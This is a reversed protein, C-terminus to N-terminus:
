LKVYDTLKNLCNVLYAYYLNMAHITYKEAVSEMIKTGVGCHRYGEIVDANHLIVGKVEDDITPYTDFSFRAIEEDNYMAKVVADQGYELDEIGAIVLDKIDFINEAKM